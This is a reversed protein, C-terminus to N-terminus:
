PGATQEPSQRARTSSTPCRKQASSRLSSHFHTVYLLANKIGFVRNRGEAVGGLRHHIEHVAILIDDKDVVGDMKNRLHHVVDDDGTSADQREQRSGGGRRYTARPQRETAPHPVVSSADETELQEYRQGRSQKKQHIIQNKYKPSRNKEKIM